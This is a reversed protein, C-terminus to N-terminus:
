QLEGKMQRTVTDAQLALLAALTTQTEAELVALADASAWVQSAFQANVNTASGIITMLDYVLETPTSGDAAPISDYFDGANTYAYLKELGDVPDIAYIGLERVEFPLTANRNDAMVRLRARGLGVAEVSIITSERVPSVVDSMDLPDTTNLVATYAAPQAGDGIAVRSFTLAAGAQAQAQISLGAITPKIPQFRAM